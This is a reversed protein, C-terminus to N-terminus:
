RDRSKRPFHPVLVLPQHFWRCSLRPCPRPRLRVAGLQNVWGYGCGCGHSRWPVLDPRDLEVSRAHMAGLPGRHLQRSCLRGVAMTIMSQGPGEPDRDRRWSPSLSDTWPCDRPATTGWAAERFRRRLQVQLCCASSLHSPCVECHSLNWTSNSSKTNSNNNADATTVKGASYIIRCGARAYPAKPWWISPYTSNWGRIRGSPIRPGDGGRRLAQLM